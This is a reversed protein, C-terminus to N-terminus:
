RVGGQTAAKDGLVSTKLATFEETLYDALRGIDPVARRDATLGFDLSGMYSQVTLNLACGHTPISVPYLAAVKAGAGYLPVNPGPVNSICVNCAMPLVDALGSRGYLDMLGRILFPAGFFAYDQPMADKLGGAIQKADTSSGQIAKLRMVPDEVDTALGCMMGFVQNNLDTNGLERLSIPVFAILESEPLANRQLLYRRLAGACITMVVDNLKGGTAKGIAKADALPIPRAAYSRESTITANFPTRPAILKPLERVPSQPLYQALPASRPVKPFFMSAVNGMVEPATRWMDLQFRVMSSVLDGIPNPISPAAPRAPEPPKVRRPEPTIDYMTNTIVMGAGGDVAAHHVKSYLAVQGNHIGDITTFQWMPRSRDLQQSHLRAITEELQEFSGPAPLTVHRFHYSLDLDPADVWSPHHIDLLTPALKKSFVPVLHLRSVLMDRYNDHFNGVYGEPLDFLTFGAVHMPTEATEFYLFNADIGGLRTM